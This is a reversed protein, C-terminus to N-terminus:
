QAFYQVFRGQNMPTNPTYVVHLQAGVLLARQLSAHLNMLAAESYLWGLDCALHNTAGESCFYASVEGVLCQPNPSVTLLVHGHTGLAPMGPNNPAHRVSCVYGTTADFEGIGDAVGHAPLVVFCAALLIARM